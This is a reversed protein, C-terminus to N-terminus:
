KIAEEKVIIADKEYLNLLETRMKELVVNELAELKDAVDYVDYPDLEILEKIEKIKERIGELQKLNM